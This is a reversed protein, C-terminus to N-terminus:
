VEMREYFYNWLVAFFAALIYVLIIVVFFGTIANFLDPTKAIKTFDVGHAIINLFSLFSDRAVFVLFACVVYLVASFSTITVSFHKINLREM